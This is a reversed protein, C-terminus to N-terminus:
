STNAEVTRLGNVHMSCVFMNNQESLLCLLVSRLVIHVSEYFVHSHETPVFRCSLYNTIELAVVDSVDSTTAPHQRRLENLMETKLM